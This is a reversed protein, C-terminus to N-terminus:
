PILRLEVLPFDRLDERGAGARETDNENRRLLQNAPRFRQAGAQSLSQRYVNRSGTRVPGAYIRDRRERCRHRPTRGLAQRLNENGSLFRHQDPRIGM